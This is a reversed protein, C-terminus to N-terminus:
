GVELAVVMLLPTTVDDLAGLDIEAILSAPETTNDIDDEAAEAGEVDYRQAPPEGLVLSQALEWRHDGTAVLRTKDALRAAHDFRIRGGANLELRAAAAEFAEPTSLRGQPNVLAAAAEYDRLSLAKLLAHVEARLRAAFARKDKDLDIPEPAQREPMAPLNAPLIGQRMGEWETILSSDTRAIAARLFEMMDFFADSKLEEPVNQLLTKYVDSLYRLLVGEIRELGYERVYENFGLFREVMDRAISKVRVPEGEAWPHNAVFLDFTEYIAEAMPKPYSVTELREIREEYPVGDAKLQAILESKAKDVQKDLIGRPSELISEVLTLADLAYNESAPDLRHLSFILFLSLTHHLSFDAQLEASIRVDRGHRGQLRKVRDPERHVLDIVGAKVLSKFLRRAEKRLLSKKGAREHSREILDVLDKYGGHRSTDGREEASQLLSLLMGHSIKFVSTLAEPQGHILSEFTKQDWPVYGKEPPGQKKFKKGDAKAESKLNEIVHAPAQCVVWGQDDYGKRGARGSIQQFDRVSLIRTKEGDYKCLKTFLVSRIPVNVGVGLTDTGSVVKLLGKQALKEVLLRYKPLLGAHHVGIGHRVFRQVDKGYPSDFRFHGLADGIAARGEKDTIPISTLSQAEEAAERQSFNVIYIPAKNQNLLGQVTEQLASLRYDFELPVPRLSSAVVAVTRGTFTELDKEINSTDGLTASMLLFTARSLTLLPIQWAIGRDRDGYYHFEDMVVHKVPLERGERLAMSSLIEATCCLIPADRNVTADGTMMGVQEAGFDKCLAFFKESVLAKIPSTYVSKENRALAHLHMATAVLSKGSGTPTKLLVHRGAFLEMIAQEQAPYLELKRDEAWELLAGFAEDPDVGSFGARGTGIREGLNVDKGRLAAM